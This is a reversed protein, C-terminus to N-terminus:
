INRQRLPVILKTKRWIKTFNAAFISCFISIRLLSLNKEAFIDMLITFYCNASFFTSPSPSNTYISLFAMNIM